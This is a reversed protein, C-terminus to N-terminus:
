GPLEPAYALAEAVAEGLLHPGHTRRRRARTPDAGRRALETVKLWRELGPGPRREHRRIRHLKRRALSRRREVPDYSGLEGVLPSRTCRGRTPDRPNGPRPRELPRCRPLRGRPRSRQAMGFSTLTLVASGPD